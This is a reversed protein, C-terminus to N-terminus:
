LLTPPRQAPRGNPPRPTETPTYNHEDMHLMLGEGDEIKGKARGCGRGERSREETQATGADEVKRPTDGLLRGAEPAAM